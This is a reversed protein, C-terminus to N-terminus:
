VFPKHEKKRGAGGKKKEDEMLRVGGWNWGTAVKNKRLIRSHVFVEIV